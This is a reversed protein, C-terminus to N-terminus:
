GRDFICFLKDGPRVVFPVKIGCRQGKAVSDVTEHEIQIEEVICYDAPTTKGYVLIKDGPKLNGARIIFEAVGIKKYYNVVDGCYEKSENSGPGKSIWDKELGKYFGKSFGRNYTKALEEKLEAALKPTYEGADIADLAKRYCSVTNKVYEPPRIRGEIKFSTIGADILEPLIEITCLDKPSLIYDHGLIYENEDDEVDTIRYLRRCPQLCRGRNGSM